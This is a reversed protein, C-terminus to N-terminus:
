LPRTANLGMAGRYTLCNKIETQVFDGGRGGQFLNYLYINAKKNVALKCSNLECLFSNNQLAIGYESFGQCYVDHVQCEGSDDILIGTKATGKGLLALESVAAGRLSEMRIGHQASVLLRTGRGSGRLRVNNKLLVPKDITFEGVHLRVEGGQRGSADIAFQLAEAASATKKLVKKTIEGQVHYSKGAQFVEYGQTVSQAHLQHPLAFMTLFLLLLLHSQNM